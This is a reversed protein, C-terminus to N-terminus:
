RNFWSGLLGRIQEHDHKLWANETIMTGRGEGSFHITVLQTARIFAAEGRLKNAIPLAQAAETRSVMAVIRCVDLAHKEAQKRFETRQEANYKTSVSHSLQDDLAALKMISWTVPNPVHVQTGHVSILTPSDKCGIAEPTNHAHVGRAGLSPKHKVRHGSINLNPTGSLPQECHLEVIVRRNREVTKAFQWRPNEATAEYGLGTLVSAIKEQSNRDQLFDLDILFDIDKTARPSPNIWRDLPILMDPTPHTVLWEQKLLLGHGGAVSLPAIGEDHMTRWINLFEQRPHDPANMTRM